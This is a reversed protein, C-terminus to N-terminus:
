VYEIYKMNCTRHVLFRHSVRQGVVVDGGGVVGVQGPVLQLAVGRDFEVTLNEKGPTTTDFKVAPVSVITQRDDVVPVREGGLDAEPLHHDGDPLGGEDGGGERDDEGDLVVARDGLLLLHRRDEELNLSENEVNGNHYRDKGPAQLNDPSMEKHLPLFQAAM